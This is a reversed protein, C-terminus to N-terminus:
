WQAVTANSNRRCQGDKTARAVTESSGEGFGGVIIGRKNLFGGRFSPLSLTAFIRSIAVGEGRSFGITDLYFGRIM